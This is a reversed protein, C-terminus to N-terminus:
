SFIMNVWTAACWRTMPKDEHRLNDNIEHDVMRDEARIASRPPLVVYDEMYPHSMVMM